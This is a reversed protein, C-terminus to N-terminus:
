RMADRPPRRLFRESFLSDSLGVNYHINSFVIESQSQNELDRAVSVIVTPYTTAQGKEEAQLPEVKLAEIVRYPRNNDKFFEMKMPLFSQKDIHALYYAFEVSEPRKPTNKILYHTTTTRILRHVDDAPSRGSIDEYVFDSGAFSTRKDSAAIRKVLDLGPLYLWRDDDKEPAAHKHVMFVMKRVDAPQQFLTYYKQDGDRNDVNKRLMNFERRRTRGSKDTITMSVKGKSDLGQYLAMHNAREIIEDATMATTKGAALGTGAFLGLLIAIIGRKM